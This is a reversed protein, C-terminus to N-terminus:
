VELWAQVREPDRRFASVCSPCGCFHVITGEYGVAVMVGVPKETLCAPCVVVDRFTPM